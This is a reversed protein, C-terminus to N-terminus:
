GLEYFINYPFSISYNNVIYNKVVWIWGNHNGVFHLVEGVLYTCGVWLDHMRKERSFLYM